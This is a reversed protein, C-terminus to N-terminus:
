QRGSSWGDGWSNQWFQILQDAPTAPAEDVVPATAGTAVTALIKEQREAQAAEQVAQQVSERLPVSEEHKVWRYIAELSERQAVPDDGQIGSLLFRPALDPNEGIKTLVNPLDPYKQQVEAVVQALAQDRRQEVLPQAVQAFRQEVQQIMESARVQALYDMPAVEDYEAWKALAARFLAQDNGRRANEAIQPLYAVNQELYSDLQDQDYVPAQPQVPQSVQQRLEELQRRVEGVENSQKGILSEKESLQHRLRELEASYDVSEQQAEVVASEEVAPEERAAFTGDPNRPQVDVENLPVGVDLGAAAFAEAIVGEGQGLTEELGM